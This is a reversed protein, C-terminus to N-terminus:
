AGSEDEPLRNQGGGEIVQFSNPLRVNLRSELNLLEIKLKQVLITHQNAQREKQESQREEHRKVAYAVKQTFETLNKLDERLARIEMANTAVSDELKLLRRAFSLLDNLFSM